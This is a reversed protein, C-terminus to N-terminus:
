KQAKEAHVGKLRLELNKIEIKLQDILHNKSEIVEHVLKDKSDMESKLVIRYEEQLITKPVLRYESNSEVLDRYISEPIAAAGAGSPEKTKEGTMYIPEVSNNWWEPNIRLKEIIKKETKIGNKTDGSYLSSVTGRGIGCFNELAMISSIGLTNTLLIKDIKQAFTM